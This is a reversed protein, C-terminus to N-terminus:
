STYTDTAGEQHYAHAVGYMRRMTRTYWSSPHRTFLLEESNLTSPNSTYSHPQAATRSNAPRLLQRSKRSVAIRLLLLSRLDNM